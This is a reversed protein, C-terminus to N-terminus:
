LKVLHIMMGPFLEILSFVFGQLNHAVKNVMRPCHQFTIMGHCQSIHFCDALISTYPGWLDSGNCADILQLCDSEVIV